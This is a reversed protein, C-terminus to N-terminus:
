HRVEPFSCDRQLLLLAFHGDSCFTSCMMPLFIWPWPSWLLFVNWFLSPVSTVALVPVGARGTHRPCFLSTGHLGRPWLERTAGGEGNMWKDMRSVNTSPTEHILRSATHFHCLYDHGLGQRQPQCVQFSILTHEYHQHSLPWELPPSSVILSCTIPHWVADSLWLAGSGCLKTKFVLGWWYTSHHEDLGQVERLKM